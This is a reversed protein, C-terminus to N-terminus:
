KGMLMTHWQRRYAAPTMGEALAFRRIFYSENEIGVRHAIEGVSLESTRLFEKARGIRVRALFDNPTQGMYLLIM